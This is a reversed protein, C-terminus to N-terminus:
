PASELRAPIALFEAAFAAVHENWAECFGVRYCERQHPNASKWEAALRIEAQGKAAKRGADLLATVREVLSATSVMAAREKPSAALYDNLDIPFEAAIFAQADLGGDFRGISDFDENSLKKRKFPAAAKLEEEAMRLLDAPMRDFVMALMRRAGTALAERVSAVMADSAGTTRYETMAEEIAEAAEQEAQARLTAVMAVHFPLTRVAAAESQSGKAREVARRHNRLGIPLLPDIVDVAIRQGESRGWSVDGDFHKELRPSITAEITM